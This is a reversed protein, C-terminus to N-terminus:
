LVEAPEPVPGVFLLGGVADFVFRPRLGFRREFVRAADDEDHDRTFGLWVAGAPPTEDEKCILRLQHVIPSAM